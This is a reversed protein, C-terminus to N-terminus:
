AKSKPSSRAQGEERHMKTDAVWSAPTLFRRSPDTTTKYAAIMADVAEVSLQGVSLFSRIAMVVAEWDIKVSAKPAKWTIKDLGIRIGEADGISAKLQNKLSDVAVELTKAAVVNTKLEDALRAEEDTAERLPVFNKPHSKKLWKSVLEGNDITPREGGILNKELFERCRELASAQFELNEEIPHIAFENGGKLCAVDWWPSGTVYMSWQAQAYYGHPIEESFPEGWSLASRASVNKFEVGREDDVIGDPRCIAWEFPAEHAISGERADRSGCSQCTGRPVNGSLPTAEWFVLGCPVCFRPRQFSRGTEEHYRDGIAQELAIGWRAPETMPEPDVERRKKLWLDFPSVHPNLGLIAAADTAGIRYTEKNM